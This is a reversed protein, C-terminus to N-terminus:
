QGDPWISRYEDLSMLGSPPSDGMIADLQSEQAIVSERLDCLWERLRELDVGSARLEDRSAKWYPLRPDPM